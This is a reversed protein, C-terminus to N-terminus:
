VLEEWQKKEKNFKVVKGTFVGNGRNVGGGLPLMGTAVDKLAREFAWRIDSDAIADDAIMLGINFKEGKAYLTQENFLAGDIAGGTFRDISVHNLIKPKASERVEIIDSILLNGRQKNEM